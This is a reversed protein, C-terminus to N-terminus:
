FMVIFVDGDNFECYFWECIVFLVCSYKCCMDIFDCICYFYNFGIVSLM